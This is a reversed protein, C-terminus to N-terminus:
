RYSARDPASSFGFSPYDPAIVHYSDALAGMVDKYQVSSAPNGHLFVVTPADPRGGERYFLDIGDVQQWGVRLADATATQPSIFVVTLVFPLLVRATKLSRELSPCARRGDVGNMRPAADRGRSVSESRIPASVSM